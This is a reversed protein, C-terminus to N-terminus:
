KNNKKWLGAARAAEEEERRHQAQDANYEGLKSAEEAEAAAIAASAIAAMSKYKMNEAIAKINGEMSDGDFCLAEYNCIDGLAEIRKKVQDIDTDLNGIGALAASVESPDVINWSKGCKGCSKTYGM